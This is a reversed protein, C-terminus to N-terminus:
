QPVASKPKAEPPKRAARGHNDMDWATVNEASVVMFTARPTTVVTDNFRRMGKVALVCQFSYLAGHDDAIVTFGPDLTLPMEAGGPLTEPFMVTVLGQGSGLAIAARIADDTEQDFTIPTIDFLPEACHYTSWPQEPVVPAGRAILTAAISRIAPSLHLFRM